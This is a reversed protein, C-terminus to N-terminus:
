ERIVGEYLRNHRTITYHIVDNKEFLLHQIDVLLPMHGQKDTTVRLMTPVGPSKYPQVLYFGDDRTVALETPAKIKTKQGVTLQDLQDDLRLMTLVDADITQRQLMQSVPRFFFLLGILL